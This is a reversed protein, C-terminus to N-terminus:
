KLTEVTRPATNYSAGDFFFVHNNRWGPRDEDLVKVLHSIFLSKTFRDTNSQSLATYLEGDSFIAAFMSIKPSIIKSSRTSKLGKKTWQRRRFDTYDLNTEDINVLIKGATM